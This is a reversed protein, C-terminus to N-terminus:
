LTIGQPRCHLLAVHQAVLGGHLSQSHPRCPPLACRGGNGCAHANQWGPGVSTPLSGASNHLSLSTPLQRSLNATQLFRSRTAQWPAKCAHMYPLWYQLGTQAPRYIKCFAPPILRMLLGVFNFNDPIHMPFSCRLLVSSSLV